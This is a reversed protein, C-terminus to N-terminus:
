KAKKKKDPEGGTTGGGSGGSAGGHRKRALALMRNNTADDPLLKAHAELAAIAEELKGAAYSKVGLVFNINRQLSLSMEVAISASQQAGKKPPPAAKKGKKTLEAAARKEDEEARLKAFRKRCIFCRAVKQIRVAAARQREARLLLVDSTLGARHLLYRRRALCMRICKQITVTAKVVIRRKVESTQRSDVEGLLIDDLASELGHDLPTAPGSFVQVQHRRMVASSM